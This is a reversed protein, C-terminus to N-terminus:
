VQPALRPLKRVSPKRMIFLAASIALFIASLGDYAALGYYGATGAAGAAPAGQALLHQMHSLKWIAQLGCLWAPFVRGVIRGPAGATLRALASPLTATWPM